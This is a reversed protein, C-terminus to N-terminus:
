PATRGEGPTWATQGNAAQIAAIWVRVRDVDADAAPIFAEARFVGLAAPDTVEVFAKRVEEKFAPDLGNRFTWMYEPIPPSDQLVRVKAADIKGERILREYVPKSLGGAAVKGNAVALAVADHAGLVRLKYDRDSILGEHLL